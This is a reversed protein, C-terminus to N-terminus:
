GNLILSKSITSWAPISGTVEHIGHPRLDQWVSGSRALHAVNKENAALERGKRGALRAVKEAFMCSSPRPGCCSHVCSSTVPPSWRTDMKTCTLTPHPRDLRHPDHKEEKATV